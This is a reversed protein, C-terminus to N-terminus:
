KLMRRKLLQREMKRFKEGLGNVDRRLTDVLVESKIRHDRLSLYAGIVSGIQVVFVGIVMAVQDTTLNSM